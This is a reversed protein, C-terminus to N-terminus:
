RYGNLRRRLVIIGGPAAVPTVTFTPTSVVSSSSIVLASAPITPTITETATIDYAAAATWTITVVTDSTRVVATVVEKDRIEKNWGLLELQASDFGNIIAQRQANFASGAAVWTDGTLELTTTEGGATYEDETQTPVSTGATVSTIGESWTGVTGWASAAEENDDQTAVWNSTRATAWVIVQSIDGNFDQAVAGFGGIYFATFAGATGTNTSTDVSAGYEYHEHDNSARTTFAHRVWQNTNDVTTASMMNGGLDRWFVRVSDAFGDYPYIIFDDVGDWSLGGVNSVYAARRSTVNITTDYTTLIDRLVADSNSIRSSTGFSLASGFPGAIETLTGALSLTHNGTHDVPTADEMLVAVEAESWVANRGFANTVAPQSTEVADAELFITNSTAATPVKVWVEIDPTGGTVFLVVDLPLQTTKASSTYARLDGGGNLLSSAGGDIAAAPFDSTKLVVPFDTHSGTITPLTYTFGFAM